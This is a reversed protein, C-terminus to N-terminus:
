VFIVCSGVTARQGAMCSDVMKRNSVVLVMQEGIGVEHGRGKLRM